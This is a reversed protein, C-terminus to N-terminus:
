VYTKPPDLQVDRFRNMKVWSVMPGLINVTM